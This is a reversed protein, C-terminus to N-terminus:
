CQLIIVLHLSNIYYRSHLLVFNLKLNETCELDAIQSQFEDPVIKVNVGFLSSSVGFLLLKRFGQSGANFEGRFGKILGM